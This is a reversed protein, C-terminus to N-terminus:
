PTKQIGPQLSNRIVGLSLGMGLIHGTWICTHGRGLWAWRGVGEPYIDDPQYRCAQPDGPASLASRAEAGLGGYGVGGLLAGILPV